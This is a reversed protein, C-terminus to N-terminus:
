MGGAFGTPPPGRKGPDAWSVSQGADSRPDNAENNLLDHVAAIQNRSQGDDLERGGELGLARQAVRHVDFSRQVDCAVFDAAPLSEAVRAGAEEDIDAVIIHYGSATLKRACAEGIGNGAGTVVAVRTATASV